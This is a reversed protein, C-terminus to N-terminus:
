LGGGAEKLTLQEEAETPIAISWLADVQEIRQRDQAQADPMLIESVQNDGLDTTRAAKSFLAALKGKRM